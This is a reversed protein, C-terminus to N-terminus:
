MNGLSTIHTYLKRALVLAEDKDRAAHIGALTDRAYFFVEIDGSMDIMVLGPVTPDVVKREEGRLGILFKRYEEALARAGGAGTRTTVFAMMEKENQRYIATLVRSFKEFGFANKLFLKESGKLRADEPLLSMEPLSFAEPPHKQLLNQSSSLMADNLVDSVASAVMETYYKGHMFFIANEVTYAIPALTAARGDKRRQISFVAFANEPAGMDYLFVEFWVTPDNEKAFRLTDLRVFGCELYLDARGDIKNSLTEANFTEASGSPKFGPSQIDHLIEAPSEGVRKITEPATFSKQSETAFLSDRNFGGQVLLFAVAITALAFLIAISCLTEAHVGGPNQKNSITM